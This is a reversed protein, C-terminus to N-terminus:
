GVFEITGVVSLEGVGSGVDGRPQIVDHDFEGAALSIAERIHSILITGSPEAERRYLDLLQQRVAERVNEDSPSVRIIFNQPVPIPALVSINATVPRRPEIYHEVAAIDTATPFIDDREDMVFRVSVTGDGLENPSIWARTVGAVERAWRVYDDANGGHPRQQILQLLRSRLSPDSEEANGGSLSVVSASASVGIIPSSFGIRSGAAANGISGTNVATIPVSASGNEIVAEATSQYQTEGILLLSGSPVIAGDVGMVEVSGSARTAANRTVSWNAAHRALNDADATDFFIQRSWFDLLGYISHFAGAIIRALVGLVSRRLRSDAGEIRADMDDLIRGHIESLTPRNYAM